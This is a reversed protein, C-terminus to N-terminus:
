KITDGINFSKGISTATHTDKYLSLIKGNADKLVISCGIFNPNMYYEGLQECNKAILIVPSKLESILNDPSDLKSGCSNLIFLILV